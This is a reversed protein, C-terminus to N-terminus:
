PRRVPLSLTILPSPRRRDEPHHRIDAAAPLAGGAAANGAPGAAARVAGTFGPQAYTYGDARRWAEVRQSCEEADLTDWLREARTGGGQREGLHSYIRELVFLADHSEMYLGKLTTALQQGSIDLMIREALWRSASLADALVGCFLTTERNRAFRVLLAVQVSSLSRLGLRDGELRDVHGALLKIRRRLQDERSLRETEQAMEANEPLAPETPLAPDSKQTRATRDYRLGVLADVVTPPLSDRRAIAHAHDVGQSRAIAILTENSLCPSSMLFPAATAIPQSGIFFAVAPPVSSSQSLAAVAERRAEESSANFLPEFLEAFQRLETRSPHPLSEFSTVTAMLVVDKRRM